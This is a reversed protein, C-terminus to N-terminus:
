AGSVEHRIEKLWINFRKTGTYDEVIEPWDGVIRRARYEFASEFVEPDLVGDHMLLFANEINRLQAGRM